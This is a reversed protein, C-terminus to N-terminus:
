SLPDELVAGHVVLNNQDNSNNIQVEMAYGQDSAGSSSKTYSTNASAIPIFGFLSVSAHTETHFYKQFSSYDDSAFQMTGQPMPSVLFGKVSQLGGSKLIQKQNAADSIFFPGTDDPGRNYAQKLLGSAYWGSTNNISLNVPSVELYAVPKYELKIKVKSMLQKFHSENYEMSTSGGIRLFWASFGGGATGNISFSSSDTAIDMLDIEINVTQGNKYKSPFNPDVNFGPQWVKNNNNDFVEIGGNTASPNVINSKIGSLQAGFTVAASNLNSLIDIAAKAKNYDPAFKAWNLSQKFTDTFQATVYSVKDTVNANKLQEDTIRGFTQEWTNVLSNLVNQNDTTLTTIQNQDATSYGYAMNQIMNLYTTTFLDATSWGDPKGDSGPVFTGAIVNHAGNSLTGTTLIPRTLMDVLTFQTPDPVGPPLSSKFQKLVEAKADQLNAM